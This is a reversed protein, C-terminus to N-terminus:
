FYIDYNNCSYLNEGSFDDRPHETIDSHDAEANVEFCSDVEGAYLSYLLVRTLCVECYSSKVMV